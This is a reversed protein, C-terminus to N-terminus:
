KTESEGSRVGRDMAGPVPPKRRLRERLIRAAQAPDSKAEPKPEPEPKPEAAKRAAEMRRYWDRQMSEIFKEIERAM